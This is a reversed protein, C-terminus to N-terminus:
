DLPAWLPDWPELLIPEDDLLAQLNEPLFQKPVTIDYVYEDFWDDSMSFYGKKGWDTGWSNEVKWRKTVGDEIHVATFAMLHCPVSQRYLLRSGKPMSFDVQYLPGFEYLHTDMVGSVKDLQSKADAAFSLAHDALLVTKAVEKLEEIPVNLAKYERGGVMCNSNAVRVNSYYPTNSRPSNVLYVYDELPIELFQAVFSKPTLNKIVHLKEEKDYYSFDFSTPPAGMHAVLIQYIERMMKQKEARVSEVDDGRALHDRIIEADKLLILQLINNMQLSINCAENDPYISKPVLGYKNVLDVVVHWSGGDEAIRGLIHRVIPSNIPEKYTDIIRELFLNAKEIKDHFFLYSQSFEFDKVGIKKGLECRLVNLSGFIWCRGSQKQNSAPFTASVENSFHFNDRRICDWNKAAPHNPHQTLVNRVMHFHPDQEIEKCAEHLEIPDIACSIAALLYFM